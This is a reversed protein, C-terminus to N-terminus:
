KKLNMTKIDNAIAKVEDLNGKDIEDRMEDILEKNVESFNNVFNLPNQIEHAIGATLEGLSAMKESQILQAQASRLDDLSNRLEITREMVQKELTENQGALMLQKEQEKQLNEKSLQQVHVLQQELSTNTHGYRLALYVVVCLTIIFPTIGFVAIPVMEAKGIFYLLSGINVFVVALAILGILWSGFNKSKFAIVAQWFCVVTFIAHVTQNIFTYKDPLVLSLPFDIFLTVGVLWWYFPKVRGLAYLIFLLINVGVMRVIFGEAGTAISAYASSKFFQSNIIMVALSINYLSFHLNLRQRRYFLFMMLFLLGLLVYVFLFGIQTHLDMPIQRFSVIDNKQQAVLSEYSLFFLFFIIIQKKMKQEM